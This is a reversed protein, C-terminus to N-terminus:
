GDCASIKPITGLNTVRGSSRIRTGPPKVAVLHAVDGGVRRDPGEDHVRRVVRGALHQVVVLQREDGLCAVLVIQECDGVLDVLVDDEVSM